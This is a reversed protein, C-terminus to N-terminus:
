EDDKLKETWSNSLTYSDNQLFFRKCHHCEANYVIYATDGDFDFDLSDNLIIDDSGCYPCKLDYTM